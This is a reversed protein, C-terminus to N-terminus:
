CGAVWVTYVSTVVSDCGAPEACCLHLPRLRVPGPTVSEVLWARVHQLYAGLTRGLHRRVLGQVHEEDGMTRALHEIRACCTGADAVQQVAVSLATRSCMSPPDVREGNWTFRRQAENFVFLSSRFGQLVATCIRVLDLQDLSVDAISCARHDLHGCQLDHAERATHVAEKGGCHLETCAVGRKSHLCSSQSM